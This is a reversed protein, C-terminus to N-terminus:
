WEISAMRGDEIAVVASVSGVAGWEVWQAKDAILQSPNAMEAQILARIADIINTCELLETLMRRMTNVKSADGLLETPNVRGHSKLPISLLLEETLQQWLTSSRECDVLLSRARNIKVRDIVGLQSVLRGTNRDFYLDLKTAYRQLIIEVQRMMGLIVEGQALQSFNLTEAPAAEPQYRYGKNEKDSVLQSLKRDALTFNGLPHIKEQAKSGVRGWAVKLNGNALVEGIWFKHHNHVADVCTLTVKRM